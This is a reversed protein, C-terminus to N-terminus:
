RGARQTLVFSRLEQAEEPCREGALLARAAVILEDAEDPLSIILHSIRCEPTRLMANLLAAAVLGRRWDRRVGLAACYGDVLADLGAQEKGPPVPLMALARITHRVTEANHRSASSLALSVVDILPVGQRASWEWDLVHFERPGAFLIDAASVDGQHPVTFSLGAAEAALDALGGLLERTAPQYHAGAAARRSEAILHALYPNGAGPPCEERGALALETLFPLATRLAYLVAAEAHKGVVQKTLPPWPAYQQLTVLHGSIEWRALPRPIHDSVSPGQSRLWGLMRYENDMRDADAPTRAVKAVVAPERSGDPFVFWNVKGGRDWNGSLQVISLARPAGRLGLQSWESLLRERLGQSLSVQPAPAPEADGTLSPRRAWTILSGCVLSGAVAAARSSALRHVLRTGAGLRRGRRALSLRALWALRAPDSRPVLVRPHYHSPFAAYSRVDAFGAGTLLRRYGAPSHSLAHQAGEGRLAGYLRGLLRPLVGAWSPRGHDPRGLLHAVAFRNSTGLCLSGGPRLLSFLDALLARQAAEAGSREGHFAAREFEGILVVLDAEAQPLPLAGLDGHVVTVNRLGEHALLQRAFEVREWVWDVAIVHTFLRALRMPVAGPGMGLGLVIALRRAPVQGLHFWDACPPDYIHWYGVPDERPFRRHLLEEWDGEGARRLVSEVQAGPLERGESRGDHFSAIGKRFPWSRGCAECRLAGQAVALATRCIPCCLDPGATQPASSPM